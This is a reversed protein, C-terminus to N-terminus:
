PHDIPDDILNPDSIGLHEMWLSTRLKKAFRCVTVSEGNITGSETETDLVAIHLEPDTTFARSCINASGIAAYRDDVIMLKSHVYIDSGLNPQQLHFVFVNEPYNNRIKELAQYRLHYHWRNLGHGYKRALVLVVKVGRAAASSLKDVVSCPWLFQDEVYVYHEALGIAREYALRITQEGNPAFSYVNGSPLTRLVQVHHTGTYGTQAPRTSVDILPPIDGGPALSWSHPPTRDNWRETFNDWIQAVAPGHVLCQVDHWADFHGESREPPSNHLPTDWRDLAIDTGGVYACDVGQSRLVIAKQHHSSLVRGRLRNDLIAIGLPSSMENIGRVFRINGNAHSLGPIFGLGSGPFYWIMAKVAVGKSILDKMQELFPGSADRDRVLQESPTLRWGALHLYDGTDMASLHQHLNRMYAEGDILPVVLNGSTYHPTRPIQHENLFWNDPSITQM